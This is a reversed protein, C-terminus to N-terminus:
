LYEGPIVKVPRHHDKFEGHTLTDEPGRVKFLHWNFYTKDKDLLTFYFEDQVKVVEM